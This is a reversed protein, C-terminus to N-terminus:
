VEPGLVKPRGFILTYCFKFTAARLFPQLSFCHCHCQATAFCHSDARFWGTCTIKIVSRGGEHGGHTHIKEHAFLGGSAFECRVFCGM